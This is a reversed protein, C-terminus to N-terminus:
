QKDAGIRIDTPDNRYQGMVRKRFDQNENNYREKCHRWLVSHAAKNRYEDVHEKGRTYVNM